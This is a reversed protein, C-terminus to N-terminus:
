SGCAARTRSTPMPGSSGRAARASRATPTSSSGAWGCGTASCGAADAGDARDRALPCHGDAYGMIRVKLRGTEGARRMAAWDERQHGHRRRRDPRHSLLAEQAKALAADCSRPPRGPVDQDVLATANDIFLGTPNGSADREIKGGAPDQTAATVGAAKLAASNAVVAHGDVRELVVPRDAVM